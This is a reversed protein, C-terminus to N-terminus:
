VGEFISTLGYSYRLQPLLVFDNLVRELGIGLDFGFLPTSLDQSIGDASSQLSLKFNPGAMFTPGLSNDSQHVVLYIPFELQVLEYPIAQKGRGEWQYTHRFESFNINTQPRLMLWPNFHYDLFLGFNLGLSGRVNFDNLSDVYIPNNRWDKESVVPNLYIGSLSFGVETKRRFPEEETPETSQAILNLAFCAQALIFLATKM